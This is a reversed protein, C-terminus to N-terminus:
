IVARAAQTLAALAIQFSEDGMRRIAVQLEGTGQVGYSATPYFHESLPPRTVDLFQAYVRVVVCPEGGVGLTRSGEPRLHAQAIVQRSSRGPVRLHYATAGRTQELICETPKVARGTQEALDALIGLLLIRLGENGRRRPRNWFPTKCKPCRRSLSAIRPIWEHGCHQCALVPLQINRGDTTDM